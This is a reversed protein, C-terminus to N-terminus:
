DLQKMMEGYNDAHGMYRKRNVAMVITLQVREKQGTAINVNRMVETHEMLPVRERRNETLMGVEGRPNCNKVVEMQRRPVIGGAVTGAPEGM